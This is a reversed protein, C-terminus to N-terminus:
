PILCRCKNFVSRFSQKEAVTECRANILSYGFKRDKAWSPILGKMVTLERSPRVCIVQQSPSINFRPTLGAPAKAGFAFGIAKPNTRLNFRGCMTLRLYDHIRQIMM